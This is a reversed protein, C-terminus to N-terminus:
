RNLLCDPPQNNSVGDRGYDLWQLPALNYFVTIYWADDAHSILYSQYVIISMALSVYM